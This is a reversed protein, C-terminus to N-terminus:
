SSQNLMHQNKRETDDVEIAMEICPLWACPALVAWPEGSLLNGDAVSAVEPERM